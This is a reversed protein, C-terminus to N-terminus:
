EKDEAERRSSLAEIDLRLKRSPIRGHNEQSFSLYRRSINGDQEISSLLHGKEFERHMNEHVM